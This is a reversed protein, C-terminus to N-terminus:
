AVLWIGGSSRIAYRRASMDKIAMALNSLFLTERLSPNRGPDIGFMAEVGHGM